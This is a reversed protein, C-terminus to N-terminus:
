VVVSALRFVRLGSVGSQGPNQDIIKVSSDRALDEGRYKTTNAPQRALARDNPGRLLEPLKAINAAIRHAEDNLSRRL